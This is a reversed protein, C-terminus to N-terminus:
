FSTFRWNVGVRFIENSLRVDRTIVTVQGLMAQTTFYRGSGFDAHLYELKLSLSSSIAYEIGAGAVWGTRLLSNSVCMGTTIDCINAVTNAFAAGATGYILARSWAFGARGRLTDIWQENTQSTNIMSFPAINPGTGKIGSASFDNEIGLVLRGTQINCGATAGVVGGRVEFNATIPLGNIAPDTMSAAHRSSGFAGGGELGAYCGSWPAALPIMTPRAAFLPPAPWDDARAQGTINSLLATLVIGIGLGSARVPMVRAGSKMFRLNIQIRREPPVPATERHFHSRQSFGASHRPHSMAISRLARRLPV